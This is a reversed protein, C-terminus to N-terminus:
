IVVSNTYQKLSVELNSLDGLTSLNSVNIRILEQIHSKVLEIEKNVLAIHTNLAAM